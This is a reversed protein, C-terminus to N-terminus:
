VCISANYYNSSPQVRCYDETKGDAELNSDRGGNNVMYVVVDAGSYLENLKGKKMSCQNFKREAYIM